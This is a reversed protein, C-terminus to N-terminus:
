ERKREKKIEQETKIKMSRKGREMKRAKEEEKDGKKEKKTNWRERKGEEYEVHM